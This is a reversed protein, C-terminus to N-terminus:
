HPLHIVLYALGAVGCVIVWFLFVFLLGRYFRM